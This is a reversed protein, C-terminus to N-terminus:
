GIVSFDTPSIDIGTIYTVCREATGSNFNEECSILLSEALDPAADREYLMIFQDTESLTGNSHYTKETMAVPRDNDWVKTFEHGDLQQSPQVLDTELWRNWGDERDISQTEYFYFLKVESVGGDGDGHLLVQLYGDDDTYYRLLKTQHDLQVEGVAQILQTRSAGEITLHPEIMRFKLDDLEFAGGLRLGLIEPANPKEPTSGTKKKFWDFM